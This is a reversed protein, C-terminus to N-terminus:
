NNNWIQNYLITPETTVSGDNNQTIITITWVPSSELSGLKAVGEYIVGNSYRSRYEKPLRGLVLAYKKNGIYLSM